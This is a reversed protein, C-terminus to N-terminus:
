VGDVPQLANEGPRPHREIWLLTPQALVVTVREPKRREDAQLSYSQKRAKAADRAQTHSRCPARSVRIHICM